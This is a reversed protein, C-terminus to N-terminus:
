PDRSVMFWKDRGTIWWTAKRSTVEAQREIASCTCNCLRLDELRITHTATRQRFHESLNVCRIIGLGIAICAGALIGFHCQMICKRM